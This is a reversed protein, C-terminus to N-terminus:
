GQASSCTHLDHLKIARQPLFDFFHGLLPYFFSLNRFIIQKKEFFATGKCDFSYKPLIGHYSNEIIIKGRYQIPYPNGRLIVCIPQPLRSMIHRHNSWIRGIHLFHYSRRRIRDIAIYRNGNRKSWRITITQWIYIYRKPALPALHLKVQHM